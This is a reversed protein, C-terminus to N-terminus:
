NILCAVSVEWSLGGVCQNRFSYVDGGCECYFYYYSASDSTRFADICQVSLALSHRWPSASGSLNKDTQTKNHAALLINSYVADGESSEWEIEGCSKIVGGAPPRANNTGGAIHEEDRSKIINYYDPTCAEHGRATMVANDPSSAM